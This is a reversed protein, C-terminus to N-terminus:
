FWGFILDHATEANESHSLLSSILSFNAFQYGHVWAAYACERNWENMDRVKSGISNDFTRVRIRVIYNFSLEAVANPFTCVFSMYIDNHTKQNFTLWNKQNISAIM